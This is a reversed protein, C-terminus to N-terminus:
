SMERISPSADGSDSQFRSSHSFLRKDRGRPGMARVRLPEEVDCAMVRLHQAAVSM